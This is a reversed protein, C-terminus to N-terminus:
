CVASLLIFAYSWWRNYACRLRVRSRSTPRVDVPARQNKFDLDILMSVNAVDSYCLRERELLQLFLSDGRYSSPLESWGRPVPNRNRNSHSNLYVELPRAGWFVM